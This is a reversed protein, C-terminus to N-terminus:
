AECLDQRSTSFWCGYRRGWEDCVSVCDQALAVSPASAVGPISALLSGVHAKVIVGLVRRRSIAGNSLGQALDDFLSASTPEERLTVESGCCGEEAM